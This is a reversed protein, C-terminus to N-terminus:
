GEEEEPPEIWMGGIGEPKVEEGPPEIRPGIEKIDLVHPIACASLWEYKAKRIAEVPTKAIVDIYDQNIQEFWVRYYRPEMNRRENGLVLAKRQKLLGMIRIGGIWCKSFTELQPFLFAM